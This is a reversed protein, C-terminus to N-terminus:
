VTFLDLATVAVAEDVVPAAAVVVLGEGRLHAHLALKLDARPEAERALVVVAVGTKLVLVGLAHELQMFVLRQDRRTLLAALAGGTPDDMIVYAMDSRREKNGDSWAHGGGRGGM